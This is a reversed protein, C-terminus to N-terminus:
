AALSILLRIIELHTVPPFVEDYDIGPKQNYGKAVLRAKYKEVEGNANKKAKYVWKVGIAKQEKPLTALEWTDNKEISKIEEDMANRWKKDHAAEEFGKGRVPIQSLDGFTVKGNISEDIDVFKEKSGCMHNSAGTDLYWVNEQDSREGMLQDVTMSDLDKSEEIAVVIYNFKSDLSRLIKEVVRTDTMTTEGYRRLQNVIALVRLFYYQHITMVAKQDKKRMAQLVDKEAQSLTAEVEPEDYGKSVVEWVDQAGLIAKM